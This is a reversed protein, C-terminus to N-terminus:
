TGDTQLKKIWTSSDFAESRKFIRVQHAGPKLGSVLPISNEYQDLVFLTTADEVMQGDVFVLLHAQRLRDDHPKSLITAELSTGTFSIDCGSATYFFQMAQVAYDYM